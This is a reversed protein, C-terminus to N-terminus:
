QPFQIALSLPVQLRYWAAMPIARRLKRVGWKHPKWVTLEFAEAVGEGQIFNFPSASTM